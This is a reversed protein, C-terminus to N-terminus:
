AEGTLHAFVVVNGLYRRAKEDFGGGCTILRLQPTASPGYVKTDPFADAPFVEVADVTFVATRGDSRQVQVTNGKTLSGLGYFVAPGLATDVHGALVSTGAAGPSTGDQYWGALNQDTDPPSEIRGDEDLTLGTVPADVALQPILVRVPTAPPLPPPAGRPEGPGAGTGFAQAVGPQPPPPAAHDDSIMTLGWFLLVCTLATRATSNM